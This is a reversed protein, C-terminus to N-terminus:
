SKFFSALQYNMDPHFHIGTLAWMTSYSTTIYQILEDFHASLSSINHLLFSFASPTSSHSLHPISWNQILSALTPTTQREEWTFMFRLFLRTSVRNYKAGRSSM